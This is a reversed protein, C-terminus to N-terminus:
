NCKSYFITKYKIYGSILTWEFNSKITNSNNNNCVNMEYIGLLDYTHDELKDSIFGGQDDIFNKPTKNSERYYARYFYKYKKEISDKNISKENYENILNILRLSDKPPNKILVVDYYSYPINNNNIIIKLKSPVYFEINNDNKCSYLFSTTIIILIIKIM